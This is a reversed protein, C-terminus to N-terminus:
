RKVNLWKITKGSNLEHLFSKAQKLTLLTRIGSIQFQIKSSAVKSSKANKFQM